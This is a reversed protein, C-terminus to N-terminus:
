HYKYIFVKAKNKKKKSQASAQNSPLQQNPPITAAPVQQQQQNPPVNNINQTIQIPVPVTTPAPTTPSTTTTTSLTTPLTTPSSDQQKTTFNFQIPQSFQITRFQQPQNNNPQPNINTPQNNNPHINNGFQINIHPPTNQNKPQAPQDLQISQSNPASQKYETSEIPNNTSPSQQLPNPTANIFTPPTIWVGQPFNPNLIFQTGNPMSQTPVGDKSQQAKQTEAQNQNLNQPRQPPIKFQISNTYQPPIQHTHPHIHSHPPVHAHFPHQPGNQTTQTGQVIHLQHQQHQHQHQHHHHHQCQCQHNHHHPHSHPQSSTQAPQASPSSSQSPKSPESTSSNLSPNQPLSPPPPSLQLLQQSPPQSIQSAPQHSNLQM